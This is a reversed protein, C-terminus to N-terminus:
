NLKFKILIENLKEKSIEKGAINDENKCRSVSNNWVNLKCLYCKCFIKM